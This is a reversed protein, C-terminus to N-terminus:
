LSIGSKHYCSPERQGLFLVPYDRCWCGLDGRFVARAVNAYFGQTINADFEQTV